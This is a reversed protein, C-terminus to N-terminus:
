LLSFSVVEGGERGTTSSSPPLLLTWRHWRRKERKGKTKEDSSESAGDEQIEDSIWQRLALSFLTREYPGEARPMDGAVSPRSLSPSAEPLPYEAPDGAPTRLSAVGARGVASQRRRRPPPPRASKTTHKLGSTLGPGVSRRRRWWAGFASDPNEPLSPLFPFGTWKPGFRDLFSASRPLNRQGTKEEAFYMNGRTSHRYICFNLNIELFVLLFIKM